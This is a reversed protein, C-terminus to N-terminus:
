PAVRTPYLERCHRCGCGTAHLGEAAALHELREVEAELFEIRKRLATERRSGCVPCVCLSPHEWPSTM